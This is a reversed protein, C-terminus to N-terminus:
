AAKEQPARVGLRRRIAATLAPRARAPGGAGHTASVFRPGFPAPAAVARWLVAEDRFQLRDTAPPFFEFSLQRSPSM